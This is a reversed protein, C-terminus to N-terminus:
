ESKNQEVIEASYNEAAMDRRNYQRKPKEQVPPKYPEASRRATLIKGYTNTAEFVEDRQIKRGDFRFSKLAVLKM